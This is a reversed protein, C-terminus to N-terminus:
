PYTLQFNQYNFLFFNEGKFKKFKQDDIPDPDPDTHLMFLQDAYADPDFSYPYPNYHSMRAM